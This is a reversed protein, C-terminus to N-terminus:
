SAYKEDGRRLVSHFAIDSRSEIWKWFEYASEVKANRNFVIIADLSSVDPNAVDLFGGSHIPLGADRAESLLTTLCSRDSDPEFGILAAPGAPLEQFDFPGFPRFPALWTDPEGMVWHKPLDPFVDHWTVGPSMAGLRELFRTQADPGSDLALGPLDYLNLGLRDCEFKFREFFLSDDSV